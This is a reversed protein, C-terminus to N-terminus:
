FVAIGIQWRLNRSSSPNDPTFSVIIFAVVIEYMILGRMRPLLMCRIMMRLM